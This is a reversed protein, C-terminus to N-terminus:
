FSNKDIKKLMPMYENTENIIRYEFLVPLCERLYSKSFSEGAKTCACMNMTVNYELKQTVLNKIYQDKGCPNLFLLCSM